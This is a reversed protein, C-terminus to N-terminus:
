QKEVKAVAAAVVVSVVVVESEDNSYCDCALMIVAVHELETSRRRTSPILLTCDMM